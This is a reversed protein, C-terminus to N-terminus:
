VLFSSCGPDMDRVSHFGVQVSVRGVQDEVKEVEDADNLKTLEKDHCASSESSPM